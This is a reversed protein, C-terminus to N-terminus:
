STQPLAASNSLWITFITGGEARGSVEIKGQHMQIIQKCIALGLGTGEPFMKKAEQTRFFEEFLKSRDEEAIGIGTDTITLVVWSGSRTIQVDIKGGSPTYQLANAILNTIVEKLLGEDGYITAPQLQYSLEVNASQAKPRFLEVTNKVIKDLETSSFTLVGGPVRLQSYKRLDDVMAIMANTRNQAREVLGQNAESLMDETLDIVTLISAIASLPARLDHGAKRMFFSKAEDVRSLQHYTDELEQERIRLRSSISSAVFVTTFIMVTLVGTVELVYIPDLYITSAHKGPWIVCVHAWIKQQECWALTHILLVAVAASAYALIKPLLETAIVLPLLILIIFLNEIGGSFHVLACIAIMDCMIQALGLGVMMHHSIKRRDRFIHILFVFVANYLFILLVVDVMQATTYRGGTTRFRIGVVYWSFLFILLTIAGIGWRLRTFWGLRYLLEQDTLTLNDLSQNM